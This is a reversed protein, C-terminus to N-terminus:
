WLPRLADVLRRALARSGVLPNKSLARVAADMSPTLGADVTFQEYEKVQAVLERAAKPMPAVALPRAGNANVVCPVEITDEDALARLTGGNAVNLPIVANTNFHIARVLALAIKDYGTVHSTDSTDSVESAKSATEIQMYGASRTRLYAEYVTQAAPGANALDRFLQENLEAIERGRTRGAATINRLAERPSYYYYLYETPLLRLERLFAPSFLPSRYVRSLRAPDNWLRSLQPDGDVYVERLWGLHNLGFYDFACRDSPLDLAQAANEFLETPTDCIGVTRASGALTMAQTVIGVPNTFNV